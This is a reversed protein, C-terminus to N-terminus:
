TGGFGALVGWGLATCPMPVWGGHPLVEFSWGSLAPVPVEHLVGQADWRCCRQMLVPLLWGVAFLTFVFGRVAAWGWRCGRCVHVYAGACCWPPVSGEPFVPPLERDFVLLGGAGARRAAGM